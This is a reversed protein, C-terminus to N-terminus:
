NPAGGIIGMGKVSGEAAKTRAIELTTGFTSRPPQGAVRQGIPLAGPAPTTSSAAIKSGIASSAPLAAPPVVVGDVTNVSSYGYPSSVPYKEYYHFAAENTGYAWWLLGQTATYSGIVIIALVYFIRLAGLSAVLAWFTIFADTIPFAPGAACGGWCQLFSSCSNNYKIYWIASFINLSGTGVVLFMAVWHAGRWLTHWLLWGVAASALLSLIAQPMLSWYEWTKWGATGCIDVQVLQTIIGLVVIIFTDIVWVVSVSAYLTQERISGRPPPPPASM